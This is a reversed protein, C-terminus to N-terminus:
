AIAVYGWPQGGLNSRIVRHAKWLNVTDFEGRFRNEDLVNAEARRVACVALNAKDFTTLEPM